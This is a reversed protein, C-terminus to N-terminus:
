MHLIVWKALSLEVRSKIVRNLRDRGHRGAGVSTEMAVIM